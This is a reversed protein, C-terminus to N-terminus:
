SIAVHSSNLRTSKRDVKIPKLAPALYQEVQANLDRSSFREPILASVQPQVQRLLAELPTLHQSILKVEYEDLAVRQAAAAIVEDLNGLHDVLGLERAM